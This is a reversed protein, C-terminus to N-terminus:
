ARNLIVVVCDELASSKNEIVSNKEMTFYAKKIFLRNSESLENQPSKAYRSSNSYQEPSVQHKNTNECANRTFCMM